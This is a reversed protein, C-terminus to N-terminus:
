FSRDDNYGIPNCSFVFQVVPYIQAEHAFARSKSCFEADELSNYLIFM